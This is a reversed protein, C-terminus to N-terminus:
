KDLLNGKALRRTLAVILDCNSTSAIVLMFLYSTIKNNHQAEFSFSTKADTPEVPVSMCNSFLPSTSLVFWTNSIYIMSRWQVARQLAGWCTSRGAVEASIASSSCIGQSAACRWLPMGFPARGLVARGLPPHQCLHCIHLIVAPMARQFEHAAFTKKLCLLFPKTFIFICWFSTLAKQQWEGCM